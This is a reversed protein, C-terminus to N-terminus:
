DGLKKAFSVIRDLAREVTEPGDPVIDELVQRIKQRLEATEPMDLPYLM